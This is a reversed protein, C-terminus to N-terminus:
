ALLYGMLRGLDDALRVKDVNYRVVRGRRQEDRPVDAVLYGAEELESLVNQTTGWAMNTNAAIDARTAGPNGAIYKIAEVRLNASLVDLVARVSEPM